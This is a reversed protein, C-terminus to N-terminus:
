KRAADTAGKKKKSFRKAFRKAEGKVNRWARWAEAKLDDLPIWPSCQHDMDLTMPGSIAVDVCVRFRQREEDVEVKWGEVNLKM